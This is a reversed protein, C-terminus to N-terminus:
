LTSSEESIPKVNSQENRGLYVRDCYSWFGRGVNEVGVRIAPSEDQLTPRNTLEIVDAAAKHILQVSISDDEQPIAVLFHFDDMGVIYGTIDLDRGIFRFIVPRGHVACYAIQKSSMM